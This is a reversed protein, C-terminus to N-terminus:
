NLNAEERRKMSLSTRCKALDQSGAENELPKTVHERYEATLQNVYEMSESMTDCAGKQRRM